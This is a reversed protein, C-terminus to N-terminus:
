SDNKRSIRLKINKNFSDSEIFRYLARKAASRVIETPYLKGYEKANLMAVNLLEEEMNLPHTTGNTSMYYDYIINDMLVDLEGFRKNDAISKTYINTLNRIESQLGDIRNIIYDDSNVEKTELKAIEFKGFHKLFPSYSPDGSAKLHTATIRASLKEKFELINQYRLDRRYTLHEIPSTDFSYGTTDDKVIIVPKDFALRLGLEFMVNPNKGSVDCVIIPNDYLNQVIRAQIVGVDASTSVMEAEFDAGNIAERLISQVNVWHTEDYGDMAAIPMVLGCM